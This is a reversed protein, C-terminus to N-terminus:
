LYFGLNINNLDILKRLQDEVPIQFDIKIISSKPNIDEMKGM